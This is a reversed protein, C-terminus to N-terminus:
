PVVDFAVERRHPARFGLPDHRASQFRDPRVGSEDAVAHSREHACELRLDITLDVNRTGLQGATEGLEAQDVLIAEVESRKYEATARRVEGTRPRWKTEDARFCDALIRHFQCVSCHCSRSKMRAM